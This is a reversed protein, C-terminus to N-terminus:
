HSIILDLCHLLYMCSRANRKPTAHRAYPDCHSKQEAMEQFAVHTIGHEEMTIQLLQYVMPANEELDPEDLIGDSNRTFDRLVRFKNDDLAGKDILFLRQTSQHTWGEDHLSSREEV